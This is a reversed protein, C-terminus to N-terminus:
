AKLMENDHKTQLHIVHERESEKIRTRLHELEVKEETLGKMEFM